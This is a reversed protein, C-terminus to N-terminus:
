NNPETEPAMGKISEQLMLMRQHNLQQFVLSMSAISLQSILLGLPIGDKGANNIFADFDTIFKQQIEPTALTPTDNM